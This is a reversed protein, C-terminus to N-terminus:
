FVSRYYYADDLGYVYTRRQMERLIKDLANGWQVTLPTEYWKMIEM